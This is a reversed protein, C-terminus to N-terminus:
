LPPLVRLMGTVSDVSLYYEGPPGAITTFTIEESQGPNLTIDNVSEIRNNIKFEVRHHVMEPGPNSITAIIGVSSGPLVRDPLIMLDSIITPDYAALPPIVAPPEEIPPTLPEPAQALALPPNAQRSRSFLSTLGSTGQLAIESSHKANILQNLHSIQDELLTIKRGPNKSMKIFENASLQGVKFRADLNALEQKYIDLERTKLTLQKNLEQKLQNVRSQAQQLLTSYESKLMNYSFENVTREAFLRELNSMFLEAREKNQFALHLEKDM